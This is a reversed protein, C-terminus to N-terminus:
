DARVLNLNEVSNEAAARALAIPMHEVESFAQFEHAKQHDIPRARDKGTVRKTM